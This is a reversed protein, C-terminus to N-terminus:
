RKFRAMGALKTAIFHFQRAAKPWSLRQLDDGARRGKSAMADRDRYANELQEIIEELDPEQWVGAARGQWDFIVPRYRTLPFANDGDIVDAHGTADSAVVTRGCAMYESMVMNNGGECRNPFLGIHSGAYVSRIAANDLLPHVTVRDLDIGNDHLVRRFLETCEVEAHPFRIHQSAAMTAISAPWHNHWVCSLRVDAHRAMFVKMAAIVLDQSKRFEFKGGSFVIFRDDDPPLPTTFFNAPDIGQLITCTNRVGGIRLHHECWTSGAVIFDWQSAARRANLLLDIDNEFFTYGINIRDWAEPYSSQLDVGRITHLTVGEVFPLRAIETSLYEGAIGWGHTSGAPMAVRM